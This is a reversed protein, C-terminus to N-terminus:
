ATWRNRYDDASLAISYFMMPILLIFYPLIDGYFGANKYLFLPLCLGLYVIAALIKRKPQPELLVFAGGLYVYFGAIFWPLVTILASIGVEPPYYHVMGTYLILADCVFIASLFLMGFLAHLLIILNSDCPAHLAIRIRGDRMEQLFQFICFIAATICPIFMMDAYPIQGLNVTRYWVVESHDQMFLRRLSIFNWAMYLINFVFLFAMMYRTKIAEKYFVAYLVSSIYM